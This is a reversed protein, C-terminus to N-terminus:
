ESLVENHHSIARWRTPMKVLCLFLVVFVLLATATLLCVTISHCMTIHHRHHRHQTHTHTNLRRGPLLRVLPADAAPDLRRVGAPQRPLVLGSAARPKGGDGGGSSPVHQHQIAATLHFVNTIL